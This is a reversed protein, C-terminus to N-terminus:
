SRSQGRCLDGQSGERVAGEAGVEPRPRDGDQVAGSTRPRVERQARQEGPEQDRSPLGQATKQVRLKLTRLDGQADEPLQDRPEGEEGEEEGPHVEPRALGRV